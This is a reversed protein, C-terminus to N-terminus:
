AVEDALDLMLEPVELLELTLCNGVGVCLDPFELQVYVSQCGGVGCDAVGVAFSGFCRVCLAIQCTHGLVLFLCESIELIREFRKM